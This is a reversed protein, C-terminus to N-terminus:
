NLGIRQSMLERHHAIDGLLIESSKARKFHLHADHDWTFGIGGHVFINEQTTRAFVESCYSKAISAALAFGPDKSDAAWAAHYAASRASEVDVLMNACKHKIAQFAAIPKGFATRLKAYEVAMELVKEAGGVQEAALAVAALDIVKEIVGWGAGEDGLLADARVSVNTFGLEAQKRTHDMTTLAKRTLGKSDGRVIFLSVGNEGDDSTRAAVVLASASHGDPVFSKSGNLVYGDPSRSARLTVGAADYRSHPELLALTGILQGEAVAPLLRQKQAENGALLVANSFLCVTAFYPACLVARGQEEMIIAIERQGLGLGGCSEPIAIGLWGLEAMSKWLTPDWGTETAMHARVKASPSQDQLFRRAQDRLSQQEENLVFKM